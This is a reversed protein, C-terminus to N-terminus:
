GSTRNKQNINSIKNPNTEKIYAKVGKVISGCLHNQYNPDTLRKCERLNSIFSTEILIAPMQAGLLVYFPAQKVGNNKINSYKKKMDGYMSEQVFAALRSSENIKANQMLDSLISHLDSINKASTANEMAAVRIADDDTALNLYFTEMGYVDQNRHANAHISIFLDASKTNAFATREELALYRDNNRTLIVECNVEERLMKALKKAIALTIDKEHVNKMSGLAGPDKGGHGPDIVVRGVGLALQKALAGAPLKDSGPFDPGQFSKAMTKPTDGWVDIVIRFPERLPFIKYSQFSKIDIVVRVTDKRYQGARVGSLLNDDIPIAKKIDQSLISNSLDIYLRPPKKLSPDEKLLHEKYLTSYDADVVIRTYSPNSWYRIGSVTTKACIGSAATNEPIIDPAGNNIVDSIADAPPSAAKLNEEKEDCRIGKKCIRARNGVAKERYRSRPYDVAIKQYTRAAAELDETNYSYSYLEEYALGMKYLGAAAWQGGPDLDYVKEFGAICTFWNERYKAKKPNKKLRQYYKEAAAYADKPNKHSSVATKNQPKSEPTFKDILLLSEKAKKWYRSKPYRKIIREFIDKAEASDPEFSLRKYLEWYLEGSMYLGAAAWAGDPDQRYVDEFKEICSLWRDRNSQESPSNRLNKYCREASFYNSEPTQAWCHVPLVTLVMWTALCVSLILVKSFSFDRM